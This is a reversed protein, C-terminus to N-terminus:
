FFFTQLDWFHYGGQYFFLPGGRITITGSVVNETKTAPIIM